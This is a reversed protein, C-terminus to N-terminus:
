WTYSIRARATNVNGSGFNYVRGTSSVRQITGSNIYALYEAGVTVNPRVKYEIGGGAVPATATRDFFPNGGAAKKAAGEGYNDHVWGVGGTGYFLTKDFALGIRGRLSALGTMQSDVSNKTANHSVSTPSFPAGSIDGEVGLVLMKNVQYNYGAHLGVMTLGHQSLSSSGATDVGKPAWTASANNSAAGANLGFYFGTWSSSDVPLVPAKRSMPMDAAFATNGIAIALALSSTTTLLKNAM